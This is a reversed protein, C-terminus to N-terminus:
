ARSSIYENGAGSLAVGNCDHHLREWQQHTGEHLEVSIFGFEDEDGRVTEVANTLLTRTSRPILVERLEEPLFSEIM